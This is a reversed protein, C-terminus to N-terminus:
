EFSQDDRNSCVTHQGVREYEISEADVNRGCSRFLSLLSSSSAGKRTGPLAVPEGRHGRWGRRPGVPALVLACHEAHRRLEHVHRKLHQQPELTLEAANDRFDDPQPPHAPRRPTLTHSPNVISSLISSCPHQCTSNMSVDKHCLFM